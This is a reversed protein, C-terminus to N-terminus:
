DGMAPATAPQASNRAPPENPPHMTMLFAVVRAKLIEFLEM